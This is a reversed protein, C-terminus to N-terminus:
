STVLGLLVVTFVLSQASHAIIAFWATRWRRSPYSMVLGTVLSNPISWPQHLHYAGFLVANVVWDARGFVGAMRPLLLGRFLLEEGLVTNFVFMTVVLAFLAWNGRFVAKGDASDLFTGFSRLAPEPLGLPLSEFLGVGATVAVALLWLRGGRRGSRSVPRTLWLAERIVRWRLSHQEVGVLVAVLVCQWVLGVTLAGALPLFFTRPTPAPGAVAPAVVWALLAM